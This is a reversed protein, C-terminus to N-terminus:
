GGLSAFCCNIPEGLRLRAAQIRFGTGAFRVEYHHLTGDTAPYQVLAGCVDKAFVFESEPCVEVKLGLGGARTKCM